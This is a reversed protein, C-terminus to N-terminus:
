KKHVRSTQSYKATKNINKIPNIWALNTRTKKHGLFLTDNHKYEEM